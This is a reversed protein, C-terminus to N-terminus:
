LSQRAVELERVEQQVTTSTTTDLSRLADLRRASRDIMYQYQELESAFSFRKQVVGHEM